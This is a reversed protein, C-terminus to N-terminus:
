ANEVAEKVLDTLKRDDVRMVWNDGYLSSCKELTGDIDRVAGSQPDEYVIKGGERRASFFHGGGGHDRDWGVGVIARAGDGWEDFASEVSKKFGDMTLGRFESDHFWAKYDFEWCAVGGYGIGDNAAFSTATVDYGRQRLEWAVVCRQCNNKWEYGEAFHPNVAALSKETAMFGPGKYRFQKLVPQEDAPRKASLRLKGLARSLIGRQESRTLKRFDGGSKGEKALEDAILSRAKTNSLGAREIASRTAPTEMFEKLSRGSSKPDRGAKWEEHSTELKKANRERLADTGPM